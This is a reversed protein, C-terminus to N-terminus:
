IFILIAAALVLRYWVFIDLKHNRLYKLLLDISVLGVFFSIAFSLILPAGIQYIGGSVSLDLFKKLGSGVIIPFSLVFSFRTAAERSIGAMLGGSITAGSRSIGPILALAQFLGIIFGRKPNLARNQVGYKEAFFMIMSGVILAYAVLHASRFITEMKSELFLGLILAPLTGLVIAYLLNKDAAEVGKGTVHRFLTSTVRWIDARFYVLVAFISALQLIADVSLDAATEGIFEHVLILHGSSSVPVFETLGQTIGLIIAELYNM